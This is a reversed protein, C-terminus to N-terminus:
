VNYLGAKYKKLNEPQSFWEATRRLGEQLSISPAFGSRQKLKSNECVLRMVESKEPRLREAQIAPTLSVHMVEGICTILDAISIEQNSGIHFVEGEGGEMRAIAVFGACTDEVFTLDRTAELKGIRVERTGQAAQTIITPIVARASQRPGYTNFPRAVVVPFGFAYYFSLAM